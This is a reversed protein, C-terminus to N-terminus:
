ERGEADKRFALRALVIMLGLFGGLVAGGAVFLSRVPFSRLDPVVAPDIVSFAYDEKVKALMITQMETEVLSYLVQQLGLVHTKDIEGRLYTVSKEADRLDRDRVIQNALAVLGNAWAAAVAPDEWAVTLTIVGTTPDEEIRRVDELFKRTGLWITPMEDPESTWQGSEADWQDAFLVPLLKNRSIFQEILMRSNLVARASGNGETFKSLDFGALGALGGFQGLMAASVSGTRGQDAEVMVVVGEFQETVSFAVVASLLMCAFTVAAILRWERWAARCLELITIDGADARM